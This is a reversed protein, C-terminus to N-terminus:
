QGALKGEALRELVRMATLEDTILTNLILM